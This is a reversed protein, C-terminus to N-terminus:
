PGHGNQTSITCTQPTLPGSLEYVSVQPYRRVLHVTAADATWQDAPLPQRTVTGSSTLGFSPGFVLYRFHNADVASVYANCDTFNALSKHPGVTGVYDIVNSLEPDVLGYGDTIGAFGIRADHVGRAWKYVPTYPSTGAEYRHAIYHRSLVGGVILSLATAGTAAVAVAVSSPRRAVAAATAAVAVAVAALVLLRKVHDFQIGPNPGRSFAAFLVCAVLVVLASSEWRRTSPLVLAVLALALALGPTLYRLNSVFLVPKGPAGFATTPTVVYAIIGVAAVAALVRVRATVGRRVAALIAAVAVVLVIFWVPGFASRLGPVFWHRVVHANTLYSGVSYGYTQILPQKSVPLPGLHVTPMPSGTLVLNRLYWSAGTLVLPVIWAVTLRIRRGRGVMVVVAVTAAAVLPVANVKTALALGGAIGAFVIAATPHPGRFAALFVTMVLLCALVAIDSEATGSQTDALLPSALVVAVAVVALPGRGTLRGLCWAALLALGLWILNFFPSLWDRHFALMGLAQLLESDLPHFSIGGGPFNLMLRTTWGTQVFQLAYPLHYTLSDTDYVGMDVARATVLGWEVALLVCVGATVLWGLRGVAPAVEREVPRSSRWLALLTGLGGIVLCGATMPLQHLQGVAGLVQAVGLLAAFTLMIEALRALAGTWGSAFRRRLAVAAVVLPAVWTALLLWGILYRSVSM